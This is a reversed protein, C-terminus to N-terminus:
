SDEEFSVENCKLHLCSQDIHLVSYWNGQEKIEELPFLELALGISFYSPIDKLVDKSFFFRQLYDAGNKMFDIEIKNIIM